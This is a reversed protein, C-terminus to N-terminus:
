TSQFCIFANQDQNQQKGSEGAAVVGDKGYGVCGHEGVGAHGIVLPALPILQRGHHGIGVPVQHEAPVDQAPDGTCSGAQEGQKELLSEGQNQMLIHVGVRQNGAEKDAQGSQGDRQRQDEAEAHLRPRSM